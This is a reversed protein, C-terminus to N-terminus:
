NGEPLSQPQSGGMARLQPTQRLAPIRFRAVAGLADGFSVPEQELRETVINAAETAVNGPIASIRDAIAHAAPKEIQDTINQDLQGLQNALGAVIPTVASALDATQNDNSPEPKRSSNSREEHSLLIRESEADSYVDQIPLGASKILDHLASISLKTERQLELKLM